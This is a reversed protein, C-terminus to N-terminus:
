ALPKTNGGIVKRGGHLDLRESVTGRRRVWRTKVDASGVHSWGRDIRAVRGYADLDVSAGDSLEFMSLHHLLSFRM